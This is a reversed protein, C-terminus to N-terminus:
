LESIEQEAQEREATNYEEIEFNHNALWENDEILRESINETIHERTELEIMGVQERTKM